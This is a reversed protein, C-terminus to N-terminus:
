KSLLGGQRQEQRLVARVTNGIVQALQKQDQTNGGSTSVGSDSVQVTINIDGGSFQAMSNNIPNNIQKPISLGGLSIDGGVLGGEAYGALAMFSQSALIESNEFLDGSRIAKRLYEFGAPGGLANIEEQNLVGEGKHVIGAAEYKGGDGTYGGDSFGAITQAAILGVSAYGLGRIAAAMPIGMVYGGEAMAKTAAVETNIMAQAMSISQNTLFMVKYAASSEGATNKIMEAMQSFITGTRSLLDQWINMQIDHQSQILDKERQAYEDDLAAKAMLYDEHASLLQANRETEDDVGDFIGSRQNSYSKDLAGNAGDYLNQLDTWAAQQPQQKRYVYDLSQYISDDMSQRNKELVAGVAMQNAQLLKERTEKSLQYNRLIEDREVKYRKLVIETESMYAEFASQVQQEEDRKVAEIEAQKQREQAALIEMKEKESLDTRAKTLSMEKEYNQTIQTIRDTEFEFYSQYEAKKNARLTDSQSKYLSNEKAIMEALQPTGGYTQTIKELRDQHDQALQQSESYYKADIEKRKDDLVKQADVVNSTQELLEAQSPLLISQDVTTKGNVGAFYKAFKPVYGAVEKAKEPSMQNKGNGINGALYRKTGTTGANYAMLAKHLSGFEQINYALDQAAATAQAEITSSDNLKYKKRFISTTQFLGKAGTPSIAGASGGSEGLILAALTGKPLGYGAEIQAFNNKSAIGNVKAIAALDTKTFNYNKQAFSQNAKSIELASLPNKGYGLDAADRYDAFSEAKERSGGAQVFERIYKERQLSKDINNIAERQKQNLALFAKAQANVSETVRDNSRALQANKSELTILLQQHTKLKENVDGYGLNLKAIDDLDKQSFMGTAQLQKFAENTDMGSKTVQRIMSDYKEIKDLTWIGEKSMSFAFYKNTALEVAHAEEEIKERLKSAEFQRQEDNLKIYSKVLEEVNEIQDILAEKSEDSSSKMYLFAAGAAIAQVALMALGAPGGILSWMSARLAATASTLTITEGAMAALTMQYRVGEIVGKVFQFSLMGIQVVLRTAIAAGLAIAVAKITDFNEVVSTIVPAVHEAMEVKFGTWSELLMQVSENADALANATSESVISGAAVANDGWKKFGAGGKELLPILKSSDGIISEMYFKIDNQTAGVKELSDYFLQLAEPGSLKQFQQITVGVLPAINTFFDALPGGGSQQFDGIRDQMDKMQDAFQEMEIGASRAGKAYYQFQTVSSNALKAFSTLQDGADMLSNVYDVVVGVSIGALIAGFAKVALGATTFGEEIESTAETAADRAQNVPAVFQGIRAVLDLTLTGLKSSM